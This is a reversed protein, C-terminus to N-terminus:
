HFIHVGHVGGESQHITNPSIIQICDINNEQLELIADPQEYNCFVKYVKNNSKASHVLRALTRMDVRNCTSLIYNQCNLKNLLEITMNHPSGHHPLKVIEMPTHLFIQSLGETIDKEHADGLFAFHHDSSDKIVVGISAANTTSKDPQFMDKELAVKLPIQSHSAHLVETTISTRRKVTQVAEFTPTIVTLEMEGIQICNGRIIDTQYAIGLENLKEALQKASGPSHLNTSCSIGVNFWIKQFIMCNNSKLWDISKLFGKIHDDDIHTLIFLDIVEGRDRIRRLLERFESFTKTPGSDIVINHNQWHLWFCDGNHAKLLSIEL